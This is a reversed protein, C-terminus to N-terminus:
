KLLVSLNTLTISAMEKHVCVEPGEDKRCGDVKAVEASIAVKTAKREGEKPPFIFKVLDKSKVLGYTTTKADSLRVRPNLPINRIGFAKFAYALTGDCENNVCALAGEKTKMGDFLTDGDMTPIFIFHTNLYMIPPRGRAFGGIRSAALAMDRYKALGHSSNAQIADDDVITSMMAHIKPAFNELEQKMLMLKTRNASSLENMNYPTKVQRTLAYAMVREMNQKSTAANTANGRNSMPM